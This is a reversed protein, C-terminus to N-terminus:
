GMQMCILHRLLKTAAPTLVVPILDSLITNQILACLLEKKELVSQLPPYMRETFGGWWIIKRFVLM